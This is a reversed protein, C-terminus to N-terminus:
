NTSSLTDATTGSYRRGNM